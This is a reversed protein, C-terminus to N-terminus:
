PKKEGRQLLMRPLSLSPICFNERLGPPWMPFQSNLSMDQLYPELHSGSFCVSDTTPGPALSWPLWMSLSDWM